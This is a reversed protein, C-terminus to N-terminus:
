MSLPGELETKPMYPEGAKGMERNCIAPWSLSFVGKSCPGSDPSLPNGNDRWKYFGMIFSTRPLGQIIKKTIICMEKLNHEWTLLAVLLKSLLTFHGKKTGPNRNRFLVLRQSQHPAMRQRKQKCPGSQLRFHSFHFWLWKESDKWYSQFLQVFSHM